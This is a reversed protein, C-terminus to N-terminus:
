TNPALYKELMEFLEQRKVPKAIYNDMGAALCEDRYGALAHATLAIIPIAEFGKSRIRKVAEFGDMEPMQIDMLILTFDDPCGSFKEVADIGNEAIEVAYGAKELMVQILKQNVANDEAVLIRKNEASSSAIQDAKKAESTANDTRQGTGILENLLQFLKERRVPKIISRDFGSQSFLDPDRETIYSLAILPLREIDQNGSERIQRAVEYGSIGPMHIDIMACDFPNGAVLARELTPLVEM